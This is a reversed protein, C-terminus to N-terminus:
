EKEDDGGERSFVGDIWDTLKQMTEEADEPGSDYMCHELEQLWECVEAPPKEFEPTAMHKAGIEAIDRYFDLNSLLESYARYFDRFNPGSTGEEKFTTM